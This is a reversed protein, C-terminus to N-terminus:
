LSMRRSIEKAEELPVQFAEAILAPDVPKGDKSLLGGRKHPAFAAGKMELRDRIRTVEKKLLRM